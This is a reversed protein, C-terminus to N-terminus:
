QPPEPMKMWHTIEIESVFYNTDDSLNWEYWGEPWYYTDTDEDYDTDGDYDGIDASHFKPIWMAKITRGKNHSNKGYALVPISTPLAHKVEKWEKM